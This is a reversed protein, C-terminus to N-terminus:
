ELCRRLLRQISAPTADPLLRWDPERGLIAAIADSGTEGPFPVRGTLMQYLVCGFAWVDTRKDVTRGRAQEPSMYAPTGLIRDMTVTPLRSLDSESGEASLAKALGFDLVKVIGESAVKINAPKLDRHIISKAHAAELAEAIQRATPLAENVPMPSAALR